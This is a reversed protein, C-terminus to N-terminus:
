AEIAENKALENLNRGILKWTSKCIFIVYKQEFVECIMLIRDFKLTFLIM